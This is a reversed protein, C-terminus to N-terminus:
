NLGNYWRSYILQVSLKSSIVAFDVKSNKKIKKANVTCYVTQLRFKNSNQKTIQKEESKFILLGTFYLRKKLQFFEMNAILLLIFSVYNLQKRLLKVRKNQQSCLLVATWFAKPNDDACYVLM